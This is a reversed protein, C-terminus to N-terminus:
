KLPGEEYGGALGLSLNEFSGSCLSPFFFYNKWVINNQIVNSSWISWERTLDPSMQQASLAHWAPQCAGRKQERGYPSRSCGCMGQRWSYLIFSISSTGQGSMRTLPFLLCAHWRLKLFPNPFFYFVPKTAPQITVAIKLFFFLTPPTMSGSTLSCQLSM